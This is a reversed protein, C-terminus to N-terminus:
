ARAHRALMATCNAPQRQESLWSRIPWGIRVKRRAAAAAEVAAVVAAAAAEV